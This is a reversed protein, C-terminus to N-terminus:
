MLYYLRFILYTYYSPLFARLNKREDQFQFQFVDWNRLYWMIRNLFGFPRKKDKLAIGGQFFCSTLMEAIVFQLWDLDSRRNKSWRVICFSNRTWNGLSEPSWILKELLIIIKGISDYELLCCIAEIILFSNPWRWHKFYNQSQLVSLNEEIDTKYFFVYSMTDLWSDLM